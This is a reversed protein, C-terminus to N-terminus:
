RVSHHFRDDSCNELRCFGALDPIPLDKNRRDIINNTDAGFLGTLIRESHVEEKGEALIRRMRESRLSAIVSCEAIGAPWKLAPYTAMTPSGLTPFDVSM